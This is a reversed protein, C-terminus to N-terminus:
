GAEATHLRCIKAGFSLSSLDWCFDDGLIGPWGKCFFHTFIAERPPPPPATKQHKKKGQFNAWVKGSTQLDSQVLFAAVTASPSNHGTRLKCSCLEWNLIQPHEFEQFWFSPRSFWGLFHSHHIFNQLFNPHKFHHWQHPFRYWSTCETWQSYQVLTPYRNGNHCRTVKLEHCPHSWKQLEVEMLKPRFAADGPGGTLSPIFM